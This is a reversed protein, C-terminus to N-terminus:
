HVLEGALHDPRIINVMAGTESVGAGYGTQSSRHTRPRHGIRHVINRLFRFREENNSRICTLLMGNEPRHQPPSDTKPSCLQDHSVWAADVHDIKRRQMQPMTAARIDGQDVAQHM